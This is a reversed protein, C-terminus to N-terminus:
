SWVWRILKFVGFWFTALLFLGILAFIGEFFGTGNNQESM